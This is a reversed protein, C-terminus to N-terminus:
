EFPNLIKVDMSAFDRVNRTVLTLGHLMATVGIITDEFHDNRRGHKLRAWQRIIAADVSLIEFSRLSEDVFEDIQRAKEPNNGRVREAGAQLEGVTMASLCLRATRVSELWALVGRHPKARRLESVVNTDLVYM